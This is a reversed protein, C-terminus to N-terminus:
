GAKRICKAPLDPLQLPPPPPPLLEPHHEALILELEERRKQEWAYRKLLHDTYWEIIAAAKESCKTKVWALFKEQNRERWERGLARMINLKRLEAIDEPDM